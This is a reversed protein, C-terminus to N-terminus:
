IKKGYYLHSYTKNEMEVIGRMLGWQEFGFKKLLNISAKNADILIAILNKYGLETSKEIMSLMLLGGISKKLFNSHVYYSIEGTHELAQRGKRYPSLSIWGIVKENYEAVLLPYKDDNHEDFWVQKEKASVPITEATSIKTEIAQNYIEVIAPLDSQVALRTKVEM